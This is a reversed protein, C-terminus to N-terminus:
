RLIRKHHLVCMILGNNFDSSIKTFNRLNDSLIDVQCKTYVNCAYLLNDFNFHLLTLYTTSVVQYAFSIEYLPSINYDYPYWALFPLRKEDASASLFPYIVWFSACSVTIVLFMRYVNKWFKISSEILIHQQQNREQLWNSKLITVREKLKKMNTVVLLAKSFGIIELLIIYVIAVVTELNDRVFYINIVQTFIHCAVFLTVMFAGYVMYLGPKYNEDNKPWLGMLNLFLINMNITNQWDNYVKDM